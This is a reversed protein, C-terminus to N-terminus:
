LDGPTGKSTSTAAPVSATNGPHRTLDLLVEITAPSQIDALFPVGSVSIRWEPFPLSIDALVYLNGRLLEASATFHVPRSISHLTLTADGPFREVVGEAPIAGIRVPSTVQLRATPYATVDFVSDRTSQSLNSTLAAMDVRFDGETVSGSAITISGWVRGTRGALTSQEGILVQQARWGVVSGPGTNWVGALAAATPAPATTPERPLALPAAAHTSLTVATLVGILAILIVGIGALSWRLWRRRRVRPPRNM